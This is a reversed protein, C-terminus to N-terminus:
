TLEGQTKKDGEKCIIFFGGFRFFTQLRRHPLSLYRSGEVGEKGLGWEGLYFTRKQEVEVSLLLLGGGCGGKWGGEGGGATCLPQM